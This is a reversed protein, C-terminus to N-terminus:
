KGKLINRITNADINVITEATENMLIDLEKSLEEKNETNKDLLLAQIEYMQEIKKKM